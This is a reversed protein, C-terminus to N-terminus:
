ARFCISRFAPSQKPNDDSGWVDLDWPATTRVKHNRRSSPAPSSRLLWLFVEREPTCRPGQTRRAGISFFCGPLKQRKMGVSTIFCFYTTLSRAAACTCFAELLIYFAIRARKALSRMRSSRRPHWWRQWLQPNPTQLLARMQQAQKRTIEKKTEEVGGGRERLNRVRLVLASVEWM